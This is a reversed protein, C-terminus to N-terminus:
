ASRTRSNCNNDWFLVKKAWLRGFFAYNAVFRLIAVFYRINTSSIKAWTWVKRHLGKTGECLDRMRSSLANIRSLLKKASWKSFKANPLNQDHYNQCIYPSTWKMMWENIKSENMIGENMQEIRWENMKWKWQWLWISGFSCWLLMDYM